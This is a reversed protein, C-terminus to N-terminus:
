KKKIEKVIEYIEYIFAMVMPFIIIFLYGWKSTLVSYVSGVIGYRSSSIGLVDDKGITIGNDLKYTDIFIDSVIGSSIKSNDYYYISDGSNVSSNKDIVVLDSKDSVLYFKSNEAIGHDNYSLLISTVLITIVIYICIFIGFVVRKM